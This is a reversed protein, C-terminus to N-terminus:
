LSQFAKLLAEAGKGLLEKKKHYLRPYFTHRNALTTAIVKLTGRKLESDVMFKPMWGFGLGKLLAEKKTYFDNVVFISKMELQETSLGISSTAGRVRLYVHDSLTSPTAKKRGQALSHKSSAVLYMEIPKLELSPSQNQRPLITLMMDADEKAFREEVENLYAASIQVETPIEQSNLKALVQTIASFQIVGDYVLSIRPEWGGQIKQCLAALESQTELLRQCYGLVLEGEPTLRSRYGSRDFIKLGTESELAGLLYLVGSHGKHLREAAKQFTGEQAVAVLAQAQDLTINM